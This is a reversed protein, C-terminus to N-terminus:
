IEMVTRFFGCPPSCRQNVVGAYPSKGRYYEAVVVASVHLLDREAASLYPNWIDFILIARMEDSGNWAEHEITDDFVWVKGSTWERARSGLLCRACADGSRFIQLRSLAIGSETVADANPTAARSCARTTAACNPCRRNRVGTHRCRQAGVLAEPRVVPSAGCIIRSRREPRCCRCARGSRPFAKNGCRQGDYGYETVVATRSGRFNSCM